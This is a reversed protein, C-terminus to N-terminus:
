SRTLAWLERFIAQEREACDRLIAAMAPYGDAETARGKCTRAGVVAFERWRDGVDTMKRAVDLLRADNLVAAAEQLFASYMFRFGGGGTGIEEQMRILQGVYLTAKRSGLKQPWKELRDALFRIGRVGIVPGPTMLMRRCVEKIGRTVAAALDITEPVRDLYYMTGKPALAGKAFRAKVLDRGPCTEPEPFVPDSILYDDGNKGIVVLNHMNFHFRFAPPFYPLWYGGTRCGVPVGAELKRDLADMAKEPTRFKQWRVGVGLKKAVRKFIGGVECRYTTLPLKNVKVFPLYGFFLGAGTGFAMAESIDHGYHRLLNSTVGSECHASQRHEFPIQM